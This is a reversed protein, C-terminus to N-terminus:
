TCIARARTLTSYYYRTIRVTLKTKPVRGVDATTTPPRRDSSAGFGVVSVPRRRTGSRSSIAHRSSILCPVRSVQVHRCYTKAYMALLVKSNENEVNIDSGTSAEGEDHFRDRSPRSDRFVRGWCLYRQQQGNTYLSLHTDAEPHAASSHKSRNFELLTYQVPQYQRRCTITRM